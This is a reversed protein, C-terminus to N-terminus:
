ANENADARRIFAQCINHLTHERIKCFCPSVPSRFSLHWDDSSRVPIYRDGGQKKTPTTTVPKIPRTPSLNHQKLFRKEYNHDIMGVSARRPTPPVPLRIRGQLRLKLTECLDHRFLYM